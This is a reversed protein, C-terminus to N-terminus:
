DNGGGKKNQKPPQPISQPSTQKQPNFVEKAESLLKNEKMLQKANKTFNGGTLGMTEEERTSLGEDIRMKAAQVEKMPDLMGPAPGNWNAGCWAKRIIPDEFFRPAKIRGSAVAETMFMEYVPQCFRVSTNERRMRFAKWAELLAGKSASYSSNFVKLLLEVPVEIASGIQQCLATVFNNFGAIPRKPDAIQISENVDLMNISGNGLEYDNDGKEIPELDEPMAEGFPMDTPSETKIFITYM